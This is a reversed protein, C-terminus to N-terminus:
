FYNCATMHLQAQSSRLLYILCRAAWEEGDGESTNNILTVSSGTLLAIVSQSATLAGRQLARRRKKPPRGSACDFHLSQQLTSNRVLNNAKQHNMYCTFSFLCLIESCDAKSLTPTRKKIRLIKMYDYLWVPIRNTKTLAVTLDTPVRFM